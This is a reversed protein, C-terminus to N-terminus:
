GWSIGEPLQWTSLELHLVRRHAPLLSKNSAHLLHPRMLLADGKQAACAFTKHQELIEPIQGSPLIGWLHSGPIVQLCGNDMDTDDLHIRLTYMNNLVALPPQVHNIGDKITWTHWHPDDFRQSVAVTKDQHWSVYWNTQPTKDFWLARVLQAQAPIFRAAQQTFEDSSLYAAIIPVKKNISRVGASDSPALNLMAQTIKELWPASIFNALRIFGQQTFAEAGISM